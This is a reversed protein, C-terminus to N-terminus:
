ASGSSKHEGKEAAYKNELKKRNITEISQSLPHFLTFYVVAVGCWGVSFLSNLSIYFEAGLLLSNM